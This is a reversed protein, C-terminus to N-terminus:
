LCISEICGHNSALLTRKPRKSGYACATHAQFVLADLHRCKRFHSTKWFISTFPNECVVLVGNECCFDIVSSSLSYLANASAVRASDTSNLYSFGDPHFDDRLPQPGGNPITRAKSATGCPPALWAAIVRDNKLFQFLLTKGNETLLDLTLIPAKADKFRTSDIGFSSTLGVKRIWATLNGTGAFIEIVIAEHLPRGKLAALRSLWSAKGRLEEPKHVSSFPHVEFCKCCIHRGRPCSQGPQAAGCGELNYNFCIPNGQEDVPRGGRLLPPVWTAAHNGKKGKKGKGKGKGKHGPNDYHYPQVREFPNPKPREVMPMLYFSVEYSELADKLKQDLPRVGSADKRVNTGLEALKGFVAKDASLIQALTACRYGPPPERSLHRFLADLYRQSAEFSILDAFEYALARRIFAQQISLSSNVTSDPISTSDRIVVGGGEIVLQKGVKANMIEFERSIAKEPPIHKIAKNEYQHMTQEFLSIAPENVGEWLLGTVKARLAALRAEKEAPPIKKPTAADSGPAEIASKLVQLTFAQSEFVLRKVSAVEGVSPRAGTVSQLQQSLATEDLPSGPQGVWYAMKSMTNLGNNKLATVVSSPVGIENARSDFQAESDILISMAKQSTLLLQFDFSSDHLDQFFWVTRPILFLLFSHSMFVETQDGKPRRVLSPQAKMARRNWVSKLHLWVM